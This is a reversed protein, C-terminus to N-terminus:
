VGRQPKGAGPGATVPPTDLSRLARRGQVLALLGLLALPPALSPGTACGRRWRLRCAGINPRRDDCDRALPIGDQDCDFRAGASGEWCAEHGDCDQDINDGEVEQAGPFVDARTDDCDDEVRVRDGDEDVCEPCPGVGGEGPWLAEDLCDEPRAPPDEIVLTGLMPSPTPAQLSPEARDWAIVDYTFAFSGSQLSVAGENSCLLSHTVALEGVEGGLLAWGRNSVARLGDAELLDVQDFVIGDGDNSHLWVEDLTATGVEHLSLVPGANGQLEGGELVLSSVGDLELATGVFGHLSISELWISSAGRALLAQAGGRGSLETEFLGLSGGQLSLGREVRGAMLLTHSLDVSSDVGHVLAELPAETALVGSQVHLVAGEAVLLPSTLTHQGSPSGFDYIDPQSLTLVGRQRVRALTGQGRARSLVHRLEVVAGEVSLLMGRVRELESLTSGSGGPTVVFAPEGPIEAAVRARGEGRVTVPRDLTVAVRHLGELLVLESAGDALAEEVSSFECPLDQRDGCITAASATGWVLFM